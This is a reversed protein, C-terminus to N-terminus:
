DKSSGYQFISEGLSSAFGQLGPFLTASTINMRKLRTKFTELEKKNLKLELKIINQAEAWGRMARLNEDFPLTVNGPCLFVGQQIILRENLYYPNEFAIFARVNQPVIYLFDFGRQRWDDNDRDGFKDGAISQATDNCWKTNICWLVSEKRGPEVAFKAAIYPSYTWDLLRTPAGYHQMLALCFLTDELKGDDVGSYRRKFDRLMKKEIAPAQDFDIQCCSLKRQLTSSLPWDSVQGRYAWEGREQQKSIFDEFDKWGCITQTAFCM